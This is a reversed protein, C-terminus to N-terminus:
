DMFMQTWYIGSKGAGMRKYNAHMMNECHGKSGLWASFASEPTTSGVYINEGIYYRQQKTFRNYRVAPSSGDKGSHDFYNNTAMDASHLEAVRILMTDLLLPPVPEMRRGGCECGKKRLDNVLELLTQYESLASPVIKLSPTEGSTGSRLMVEPENKPVYKENDLFNQEAGFRMNKAMENYKKKREAEVQLRTKEEKKKHQQVHYNQRNKQNRCQAFVAGNFFCMLLCAILLTKM